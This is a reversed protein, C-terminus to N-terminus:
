QRRNDVKWEGAKRGAARLQEQEFMRGTSKTVKIMTAALEKVYKEISLTYGEVNDRIEVLRKLASALTDHCRYAEGVGGFGGGFGPPIGSM